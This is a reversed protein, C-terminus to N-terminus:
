EDLVLEQCADQELRQVISFRCSLNLFPSQWSQLREENMWSMKQGQECQPLLVCGFCIKEDRLCM